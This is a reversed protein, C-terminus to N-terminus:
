KQRVCFPPVQGLEGLWACMTGRAFPYAPHPNQPDVNEKPLSSELPPSSPALDPHAHAFTGCRNLEYIWAHLMHFQPTWKVDPSVPLGKAIASAPLCQKPSLGQRFSLKRAALTPHEYNLGTFCVGNHHHWVDQEGSFGEGYLHAFPVFSDGPPYKEGNLRTPSPGSYYFVAWLRGRADYNLGEPAGPDFAYGLAGKEPRQVWHTGHGHFSPTWPVFGDHIAARINRYAKTARYAAALQRDLETSLSGTEAVAIAIDKSDLVHDANRDFFAVYQGSRVQQRLMRLDNRTVTRDGDFDSTSLVPTAKTTPACFGSQAHDDQALASGSAAAFLAALAATVQHITEM